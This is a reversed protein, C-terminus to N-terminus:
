FTSKDKLIMGPLVYSAAVLSFLALALKPNTLAIWAGVVYAALSIINQWKRARAALLFASGKPHQAVITAFLASFAVGCSFQLLGYVMTAFPGMHTSAVYATSFPILSLLFLLINNVWIVSATASRAAALLHHHNVWYIAVFTFSILYILFSHSIKLLEGPDDTAPPKLDLVMITIIVAIVGDSFAEVRSKPLGSETM